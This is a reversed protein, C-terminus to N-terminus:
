KNDVGFTMMKDGKKVADVSTGEYSIIRQRGSSTGRSQQGVKSNGKQNNNGANYSNNIQSEFM